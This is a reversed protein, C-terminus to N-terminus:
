RTRVGTKGDKRIVINKAKRKTKREDFVTCNEARCPRRNGTFYLYGCAVNCFRDEKKPGTMDMSWKCKACRKKIELESPTM